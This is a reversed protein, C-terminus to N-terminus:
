PFKGPGPFSNLVTKLGISHQEVIGPTLKDLFVPNFDTQTNVTGGLNVIKMALRPFALPSMGPGHFAQFQEPSVPNGVPNNRHNGVLGEIM